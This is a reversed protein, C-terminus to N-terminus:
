MPCSVCPHDRIERGGKEHEPASQAHVAHCGTKQPRCTNTAKKEGKVKKLVTKAVTIIATGPFGASHLRHIQRNFDDQMKHACLKQLASELTLSTIATKVTKVGGGGVAEDGHAFVIETPM